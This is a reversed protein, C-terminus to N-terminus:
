TTLRYNKGGTIFRYNLKLEKRVMDMINLWIGKAWIINSNQSSQSHIHVYDLPEAHEPHLLFFIYLFSFDAIGAGLGTVPTWGWFLKGNWLQSRQLFMSSSKVWLVRAEYMLLRRHWKLPLKLQGIESLCWETARDCLPWQKEAVHHNGPWRDDCGPGAIQPSVGRINLSYVQKERAPVLHM